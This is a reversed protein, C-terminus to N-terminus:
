SLKQLHKLVTFFFSVEISAYRLKLTLFVSKSDSSKYGECGKGGEGCFCALLMYYQSNMAFDMSVLGRSNKRGGGSGYVCGSPYPVTPNSCDLSITSLNSIKTSLLGFNFTM